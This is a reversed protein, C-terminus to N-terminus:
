RGFLRQLFSKQPKEKLQDVAEKAFQVEQYDDDFRLFKTGEPIKNQGYTYKLFFEQDAEYVELRGSTPNKFYHVTQAERPVLPISTALRREQTRNPPSCHVVRHDHVVVEGAKLPVYVLEHYQIDGANMFSSPLLTGRINHGLRHSGRLLYMAGNAENTDTLACWLNLSAYQREDIFTWDQHCPMVSEQSPMKLVFNGVVMRYDDLYAEAFDNALGKLLENCGQKFAENDSYIGSFFGEQPVPPLQDYQRALALAEERGLFPLVVFGDREFAAQHQKNKFVQRMNLQVNQM